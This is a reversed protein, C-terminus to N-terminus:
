SNATLAAGSKTFTRVVRWKNHIEFPKKEVGNFDSFSRSPMAKPFVIQAEVAEKLLEEITPENQM